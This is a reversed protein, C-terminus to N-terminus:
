MQYLKEVHVWLSIYMLYITLFVPFVTKGVQENIKNYKGFVLYGGILASIFAHYQRTQGDFERMLLSLVKYTVVFAALNKSHTLTAEFIVQAQGLVSFLELCLLILTICTDIM